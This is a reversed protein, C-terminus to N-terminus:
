LGPGRDPRGYRHARHSMLRSDRSRARAITRV